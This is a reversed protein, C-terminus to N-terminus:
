HEKSSSAKAGSFGNPSRARASHRAIQSSRAASARAQKSRARAMTNLSCKLCSKKGIRSPWTSKDSLRKTSDRSRKSGIRTRRRLLDRSVVASLSRTARIWVCRACAHACQPSRAEARCCQRLASGSMAKCSISGSTVCVRRTSPTLPSRNVQPAPPMSNGHWRSTQRQVLHISFGCRNEIARRFLM